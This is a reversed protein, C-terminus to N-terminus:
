KGCAYSYFDDCPDVSTNMYRMMIKAQALRVENHPLSHLSALHFAADPLNRRRRRLIRRGSKWEQQLVDLDSHKRKCYSPIFSTQSEKIIMGGSREEMVEGHEMLGLSRTPICENENDSKTELFDLSNDFEYDVDACITALLQFMIMIASIMVFQRKCLSRRAM